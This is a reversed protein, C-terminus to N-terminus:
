SAKRRKPPPVYRFRPGAHLGAHAGHLGNYRTQMTDLIESYKADCSLIAIQEDAPDLEISQPDDVRQIVDTKEDISILQTPDFSFKVPSQSDPIIKMGKVLSEFAHFHFIHNQLDAPVTSSGEGQAV